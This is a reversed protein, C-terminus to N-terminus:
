KITGLSYIFFQWQSMWILDRYHAFVWRNPKWGNNLFVGFINNSELFKADWPEYIYWKMLINQIESPCPPTWEFSRILKWSKKKIFRVICNENWIKFNQIEIEYVSEYPYRSNLKPMISNMECNRIQLKPELFGIRSKSEL